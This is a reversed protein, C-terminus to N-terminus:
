CRIAKGTSGSSASSARNTCTASLRRANEGAKTNVMFAIQPTRGGSQRIYQFVECLTFYVDPYTETNTADFILTDVGADSLLRAHRRIVWPDTSLYYGYLPEAWYHYTGIPGWLKSRPHHVADPDLALIKAIDYPGDGEPRKGQRKDHWLFYFMGVFRGPRAATVEGPMPLTRGLGDTAPLPSIVSPAPEVRQAKCSSAFLLGFSLALGAAFGRPDLNQITM